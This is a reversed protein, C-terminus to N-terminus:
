GKKPAQTGLNLSGTGSPIVQNLMVNEIVSNLDDEEGVMSANMVHRIPTEFATRALVSPKEKVIGYRNIGLLHGSMCMTDAVLMIHRIDIDIGQADIVKIVENVVAQRAAEIGLLKEIEYLNNTMTRTPDVGELKFVEKLNSGATVIVYEDGRKIPLVQSIGKVGSISAAKIRDKLKYIQKLPEDKSTSRIVISEKEVAIEFGKLSKKLVAAIKANTTQLDDLRQKSLKVVMKTEVVDISLEELLENVTTEKIREAVKRVDHQKLYEEHFYIEMMETSITKRGDLIEILRPLGTTVNMESVGAFHFTNLTMQTGPEGISEAAILGVNEGPDVWSTQYERHVAEVIKKVQADSAKEPIRQEIQELLNHPMKGIWPKIVKNM